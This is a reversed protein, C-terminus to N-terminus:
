QSLYLSPLLAAMKMEGNKASVKYWFSANRFAKCSGFFGFFFSSVHNIPPPLEEGARKAAMELLKRFTGQLTTVWIKPL